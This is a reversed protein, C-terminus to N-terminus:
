RPWRGAPLGHVNGSPGIANRQQDFEVGAEIV